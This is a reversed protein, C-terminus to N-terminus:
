VKEIPFNATDTDATFLDRSTNLQLQVPYSSSADWMFEGGSTVSAVNLINGDSVCVVLFEDNGTSNYTVADPDVGYRSAVAAVVAEPVVFEVSNTM